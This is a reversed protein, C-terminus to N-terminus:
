AAPRNSPLVRGYLGAVRELRAMEVVELFTM